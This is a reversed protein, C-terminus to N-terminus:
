AFGPTPRDTDVFGLRRNLAIPAYNDAHHVTFVYPVGTARAYRLALVKLALALGKRRWGRVVGTMEAFVVQRESWYSSASMGVWQQNQLAIIIGNPDDVTRTIRQDAYEEFTYFSGRGPIDASCVKNLEYLSRRNASTDGLAALTNFAVGQRAAEDLWGVFPTEDFARLDLKLWVWAM